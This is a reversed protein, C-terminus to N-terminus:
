RSSSRRAGQPGARLRGLRSPRDGDDLGAGDSNAYAVVRDSSGDLGRVDTLVGEGSKIRALIAANAPRAFSALTVQQGARDLIVLGEFGLDISRQDTPSPKLELAGALVGTLRGAGDRTPVAMIVVRRNAARTVLGESVFPAGTAVVAKFYSRDAVSLPPREPAAIARSAASARATSGVLGGTFPKAKGSELRTFYTRMAVQDASVVSPSAAISSLLGLQGAFYTDFVTSALVVRAKMEVLDKKKEADYQRWALLASVGVVVTLIVLAGAGLRRRFQVVRRGLAAELGGKGDERPLEDAPAMLGGLRRTADRPAAMGLAAARDQEVPVLQAAPHDRVRAAGRRETVRRATGGRAEVSRVARILANIGSSDIFTIGAVDIVVHSRGGGDLDAMRVSFEEVSVVELEGVLEVLATGEVPFSIDISLPQSSAESM